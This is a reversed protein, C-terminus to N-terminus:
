WYKRNIFWLVDCALMIWLSTLDVLQTPIHDYVYGVISEATYPLSKCYGEHGEIVVLFLEMTAHCSSELLM